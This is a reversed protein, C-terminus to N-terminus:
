WLQLEHPQQRLIQRRSCTERYKTKRSPKRHRTLQLTLLDRLTIPRQAPVTDNLDAELSRIVRRNALEPLWRDIPDDLKLVGEEVLIMASAATVSKGISAVAFITDRKMPARSKLDKVGAVHVHVISGRSVLAVLGPVSGSAVNAALAADLKDFAGAAAAWSPSVAAAAFGILGAGFARRTMDIEPGSTNM